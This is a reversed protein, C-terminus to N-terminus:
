ALINKRFSNIIAELDAKLRESNTKIKLHQPTELLECAKEVIFDIYDLIAGNPDKYEEFPIVNGNRHKYKAVAKATSQRPDNKDMTHLRNIVVFIDNSNELFLYISGNICEETDYTKFWRANKIMPALAEAQRMDICPKKKDLLSKPLTEILKELQM